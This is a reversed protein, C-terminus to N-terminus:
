CTKDFLELEFVRPYFHRINSNENYNLCNLNFHGIMFNKKQENQVGQFISTLYAYIRM